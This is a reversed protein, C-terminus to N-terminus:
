RAGEKTIAIADSVTARVGLVHAAACVFHSKSLGALHHFDTLSVRGNSLM